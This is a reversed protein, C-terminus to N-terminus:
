FSIDPHDASFSHAQLKFGALTSNLLNVGPDILVPGALADVEYASPGSVLGSLSFHLLGYLQKSAFKGGSDTQAALSNGAEQGPPVRVALVISPDVSTAEYQGAFTDGKKVLYVDTGNAVVAQFGRDQTEVYGLTQFILTDPAQLHAFQHREASKGTVSPAASRSPRVRAQPIQSPSPAAAVLPDEPVKVPLRGPEPLPHIVGADEPWSSPISPPLASLLQDLAPREGDPSPIRPAPPEVMAEVADASVSVARYDGGFRDGQRVLYVEDNQSVIATFQGEANVVYGLPKLKVPDAAARGMSAVREAAVQPITPDSTPKTAAISDGKLGLEGPKTAAGAAVREGSRPVPPVSVMSDVPASSTEAWPAPGSPAPPVGAARGAVVHVPPREGPIEPAPENKAMTVTSLEPELRVSQGDAVVTEVEGDAKQVYGLSKEAEPDRPKPTPSKVLTEDVADVADPTISTIRYRGAVLDGTHVAQPENDQLIFAEVEGGAREVYGIPKFVMPKAPAPAPSAVAMEAPSAPHISAPQTETPKEAPLVPPPAASESNGSALGVAAVTPHRALSDTSEVMESPIRAPAAAVVTLSEVQRKVEPEALKVRVPTFRLRLARGVLRPAAAVPVKGPLNSDARAAWRVNRRHGEASRPPKAQGVRPFLGSMGSQLLPRLKFLSYLCVGVAIGLVFSVFQRAIKVRTDYVPTQCFAVRLPGASPLIAGRSM